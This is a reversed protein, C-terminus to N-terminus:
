DHNDRRSLIARRRPVPDVELCQQGSPVTGDDRRCLIGDRDPARGHQSPLRVDPSQEIGEMLANLLRHVAPARRALHRLHTDCHVDWYWTEEFATVQGLDGPYIINYARDCNFPPDLYVLDVSGSAMERLIPLNDGYYLQRNAAVATPQEAPMNATSATRSM